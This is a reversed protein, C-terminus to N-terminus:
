EMWGKPATIRMKWHPSLDEEVLYVNEDPGADYVEEDYISFSGFSLYEGAELVGTEDPGIGKLDQRAVLRLKVYDAPSFDYQQRSVFGFYAEDDLRHKDDDILEWQKSLRGGSILDFHYKLRTMDKADFVELSIDTNKFYTKRGLFVWHYKQGQLPLKLYLNRKVVGKDAAGADPLGVVLTSLAVCFVGVLWRKLTRIM